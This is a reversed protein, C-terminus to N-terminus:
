SDKIINLTPDKVTSLKTFGMAGKELHLCTEGTNHYSWIYIQYCEREEDFPLQELRKKLKLSDADNIAMYLDSRLTVLKQESIETLMKVQQADTKNEPLDLFIFKPSPMQISSLIEQNTETHIFESASHIFIGDNSLVQVLPREQYVLWTGATLASFQVAAIAGLDFKILRATKEPNFVMLTLLPGLVIDVGAVIKIGQYGGMNIFLNPYWVFVIVCLLAVFILLSIFLHIGFAQWRNKVKLM